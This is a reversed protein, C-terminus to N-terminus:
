KEVKLTEGSAAAQQKALLYINKPAPDYGITGWDAVLIGYGNLIAGSPSRGKVPLASVNITQTDLGARIYGSAMIPGPPAPNIRDASIYAALSSDVISKAQERTLAYAIGDDQITSQSRNVMCGSLLVAWSFVIFAFKKM